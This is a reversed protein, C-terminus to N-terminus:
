SSTVVPHPLREDETMHEVFSRKFFNLCEGYALWDERFLTSVVSVEIRNSTEM